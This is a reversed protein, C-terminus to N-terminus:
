GGGFFFIPHFICSLKWECSCFLDMRNKIRYIGGKIGKHKQGSVNWQITTSDVLGEVNLFCLFCDCLDVYFNFINLFLLDSIIKLYYLLVPVAMSLSKSTCKLLHCIISYLVKSLTSKGHFCQLNLMAKNNM